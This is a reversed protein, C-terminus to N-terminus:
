NVIKIVIAQLYPDGGYTGASGGNASYGLFTTTGGTKGSVNSMDDYTSNGGAGGAGLTGTYLQGKNVKINNQINVSGAGGGNPGSSSRGPASGGGGGGGIFLDVRNTVMFTYSAMNDFYPLVDSVGPTTFNIEEGDNYGDLTINSRIVTSVPADININKRKQDLIIAGNSYKNIININAAGSNCMFLCQGKENTTYNYWSSGDRCNALINVAPQGISDKVTLLISCSGVVVPISAEPEGGARSILAEGM